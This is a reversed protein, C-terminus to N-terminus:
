APLEAPEAAAPAWVVGTAGAFATVVGAAAGALAGAVGLGVVVGVAGAFAGPAAVVCVGAVAGLAGAAAPVLFGSAPIGWPPPPSPSGSLLPPGFSPSPGM